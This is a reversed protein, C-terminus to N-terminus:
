RFDPLYRLVPQDWAVKGEEVLLALAAATFSKSNSAIGFL